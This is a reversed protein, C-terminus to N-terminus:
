SNTLLIDEVAKNTQELQHQLEQIKKMQEELKSENSKPIEQYKGIIKNSEKDYEYTVYHNEKTPFPEIDQYEHIFEENVTVMDVFSNDDKRKRILFKM